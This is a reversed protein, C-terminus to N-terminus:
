PPNTSLQRQTEKHVRHVLECNQGPMIVSNERDIAEVAELRPLHQQYLSISCTQRDSGEIEALYQSLERRSVEQDTHALYDIVHRRRASSLINYVEEPPIQATSESTNTRYLNKLRKLLRM